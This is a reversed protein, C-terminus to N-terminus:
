AMTKFPSPAASRSLAPASPPATAWTVAGANITFGGTYTNAGELTITGAGAKTVAGSGSPGNQIVGAIM